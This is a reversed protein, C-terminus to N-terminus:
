NSSPKLLEFIEPNIIMLVVVIIAVMIGFILQGTVYVGIGKLFSVVKSQHSFMNMYGFPIYIFSILLLPYSIIMSDSIKLFCATAISIWYIHGQLYFPLVMHEIFNLNQKRFFIYRSAFAQFPIYLFSIIKLNDSVLQFTQQMVKEQGSGAKPPTQLGARGAHSMFYAVDMDLMSLVLIFLTIMLFFYGVPGYYKVRNGSIFSHAAFGPRITLDRLTNPFMGDFGYIRAWFDNWGERFTIRKVQTRQGCHSCYQDFVEQQCNLCKKSSETLM